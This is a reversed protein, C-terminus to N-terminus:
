HYHSRKRKKKLAGMYGVAIEIPMARVFQFISSLKLDRRSVAFRELWAIVLPLLGLAEDFLPVMDLHRHSLLIKKAAVINKDQNSNLDLMAAGDHPLKTSYSREIVVNQLTHNSSHTANISTTDCLMSSFVDLGMHNQGNRDRALALHTISRNSRLGAAFIAAWDETLTDQFRLKGVGCGPDALSDAVMRLGDLSIPNGSLDLDHFRLPSLPRTFAIENLSLGLTHVSSPLGRILADLETDGIRNDALELRELRRCGELARVLAKTCECDILNRGLHLSRIGAMQPLVASLANCSGTSMKMDCLTMEQMRTHNKLSPICGALTEDDLVYAEQEWEASEFSFEELSNMERLVEFLHNAESIDVDCGDLLLQAVNSNRMAPGLKYMVYTLDCHCFSMTKFFDCQGLDRFFADVSEKSCHSFINQGILEFFSLHTSKKVFYGLWGLFKSTPHYGFTCWIDAHEEGCLMLDCVEEEGDDNKKLLRLLNGNEESHDGDVMDDFSTTEALAEYDITTM